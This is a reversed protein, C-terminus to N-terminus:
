GAQAKIAPVIERALLRAGHPALHVTDATRVPRVSGDGAPLEGVWEGNPGGIADAADVLHVYPRESAIREYEDRLGDVIAQLEDTVMPPPLVLVVPAGTEAIADMALDAQRGWERAFAPSGIDRVVRGQPTRWFEDPEATYNGIMLFVVVDPDTQALAQELHDPWDFFDPTLLGSGNVGEDHVTWGDGLQNALSPGTQHMISDGILLVHETSPTLAEGVGVGVALLALVVLGAVRRRV